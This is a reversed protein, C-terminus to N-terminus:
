NMPCNVKLFFIHHLKKHKAKYLAEIKITYQRYLADDRGGGGVKDGWDCKRYNERRRFPLM